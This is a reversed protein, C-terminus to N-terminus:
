FSGIVKVQFSLGSDSISQRIQASNARLRVWVGGVKASGVWGRMMGKGRGKDSWGAEHAGLVRSGAGQGQLVTMMGHGRSVGGVRFGSGSARDGIM